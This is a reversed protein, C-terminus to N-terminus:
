HTAQRLLYVSSERENAFSMLMDDLGLTLKGAKEFFSYSSKSLEQFDTEIKLSMEISSGVLGKYKSLIKGLLDTQLDYDLVEVGFIGIFKEACGDIQPPVSNYLREFLLHDEYFNEGKSTWHNHQHIMAMARLTALYLNAVKFHTEM